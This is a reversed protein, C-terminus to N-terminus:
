NLKRAIIFSIDIFIIHVYIWKTSFLNKQFISKLPTAIYYTLKLQLLKKPPTVTYGWSNQFRTTSFFPRSSM